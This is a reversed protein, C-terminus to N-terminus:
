GRGKSKNYLASTVAANSYLNPGGSAKPHIHDIQIGDDTGLPTLATKIVDDDADSWCQGKKQDSQTFMNALAVMERQPLAFEWYKGVTFEGPTVKSMLRKAVQQTASSYILYDLWANPRPGDPLFGKFASFDSVEDEIKWGTGVSAKITMLDKRLQIDEDDTISVFTPAGKTNEISRFPKATGPDVANLDTVGSFLFVDMKTPIRIDAFLNDPYSLRVFMACDSKGAAEKPVDRELVRYTGRNVAGYMPVLNGYHDAGGLELAVLHGGETHLIKADDEGGNTSKAVLCTSHSRSNKGGLMSRVAIPRFREQRNVTIVDAYCQFRPNITTWPM